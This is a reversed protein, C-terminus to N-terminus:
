ITCFLFGVNGKKSKGRFNGKFWGLSPVWSVCARIILNRQCGATVSPGPRHQHGWRVGRKGRRESRHRSPGGLRPRLHALRHDAQLGARGAFCPKGLSPTGCNVSIGLVFSLQKKVLEMNQPTTQPTLYGCPQAGSSRVLILSLGPTTPTTKGAAGLPRKSRRLRGVRLLPKVAATSCVM